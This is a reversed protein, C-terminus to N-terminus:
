VYLAGNVMDKVLERFTTKPKWGLIKKAKSADGCLSVVDQPRFFKPNTAIVKRGNWFASDGDWTLKMDLEEAAICAFERVSHQEGTAIVYDDPKDQQLMLWMAEVYDRAHGWDRKAELNGLLLCEGTKAKVLGKVIKQTVFQNGRFPSEHNFLIGNCTFMGYARYNVTSWYAYLKAAAYPSLPKFPTIESQPPPSSGFLESTSAQYFRAKVDLNADLLRQVGVANVSATYEPDKFSVGVDSQAALNYIEDPSVKHLVNYLHGTLDGDHLTIPLGDIRETNDVSSHRIVGHVEYGKSILLRALYAGDQGTIGTILARM